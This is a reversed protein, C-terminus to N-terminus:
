RARAGARATGRAPDPCCADGWSTSRRGSVVAPDKQSRYTPQPQVPFDKLDTSALLTAGSELYLTVHDKMLLTGSKFIGAPIIVRGGGKGACTEIAKNIAITNTYSIGAKAGFDTILFDQAKLAYNFLLINLISVLFIKKM